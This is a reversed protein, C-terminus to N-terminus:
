ERSPAARRAHPPAASASAARPSPLALRKRRSNIWAGRRRREGHSSHPRASIMGELRRRDHVFLGPPFEVFFDSRSEARIQDAGHGLRRDDDADSPRSDAALSGAWASSGAIFIPSGSTSARRAGSTRSLRRRTIAFPLASVTSHLSRTGTSRRNSTQTAGSGAEVPSIPAASSVRRSRVSARRTSRMRTSKMALALWSNRVGRAESSPKTSVNCPGARSSARARSFNRAMMRSCPRRM